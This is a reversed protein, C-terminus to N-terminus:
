HLVVKVTKVMSPGEIIYRRTLVAYLRTAAGVRCHTSSTESTVVYGVVLCSIQICSSPVPGGLFRRGVCYGDKVGLRVTDIFMLSPTPHENLWKELDSDIILADKLSQAVSIRMARELSSLWAVHRSMWHVQYHFMKVMRM